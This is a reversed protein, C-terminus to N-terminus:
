RSFLESVCKYSDALIDLSRSSLRNLAMRCLIRKVPFELLSFDDLGAFLLEDISGNFYPDHLIDSKRFRFTAFMINYGNFLTVVVNYRRVEVYASILHGRFWYLVLSSEHIPFSRFKM